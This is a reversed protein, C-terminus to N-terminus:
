QGQRLAPLSTSELAAEIRLLKEKLTNSKAICHEVENIPMSKTDRKQLNRYVKLDQAVETFASSIQCALRTVDSVQSIVSSEFVTVEAEALSALRTCITILRLVEDNGNALSFERQTLDVTM